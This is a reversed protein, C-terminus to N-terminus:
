INVSHISLLRSRMHTKYMEHNHMGNKKGFAPPCLNKSNAQKM